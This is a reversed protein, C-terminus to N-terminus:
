DPVDEKSVGKLLMKFAAFEFGLVTTVITAYIGYVAADTGCPFNILNDVLFYQIKTLSILLLLPAVHWKVLAVRLKELWEM